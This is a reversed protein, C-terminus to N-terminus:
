RRDSHFTHIEVKKCRNEINKVLEKIKPSKLQFKQVEIHIEDCPLHKLLFFLSRLSTTQISYKDMNPPPIITIYYRNTSIYPKLNWIWKKDEM